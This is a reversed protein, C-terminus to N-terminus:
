DNHFGRGNIAFVIFLVIAFGAFNLAIFEMTHERTLSKGLLIM